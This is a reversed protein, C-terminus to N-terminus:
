IQLPLSINSFRYQFSGTLNFAEEPLSEGEGGGTTIGSIAVPMQDLTMKETTGTKERIANGIAELKNTLAM